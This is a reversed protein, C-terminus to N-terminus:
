AGKVLVLDGAKVAKAYHAGWESAPIEIDSDTDWVLNGNPDREAGLVIPPSPMPRMYRIVVRGEVPRVTYSQQQESM